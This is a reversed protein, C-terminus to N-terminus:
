LLSLFEQNVHCLCMLIIYNYTFTCYTCLVVLLYGTVVNREGNVLNTWVPDSKHSRARKPYIKPEIPTTYRTPVTLLYHSRECKQAGEQSDPCGLWEIRSPLAGFDSTPHDHCVPSTAWRCIYTEVWKSHTTCSIYMNGNVPGAPPTSVLSPLALEVTTTTPNGAYDLHLRSWPRSPWSWPQLPPTAQCETCQRVTVEIDTTIGVRVNQGILAKMRSMREHLEALIAERFDSPIVVRTGGVLHM